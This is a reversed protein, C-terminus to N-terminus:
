ICRYLTARSYPVAYRGATDCVEGAGCDADSFCPRECTTASADDPDAWCVFQGACFTHDACYGHQNASGRLPFCSLMSFSQDAGVDGQCTTGTCGDNSVPNCSFGTLLTHRPDPTFVGDTSADRLYYPAVGDWDFSCGSALLALVLLARM